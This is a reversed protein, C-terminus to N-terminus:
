GRLARLGAVRRAERKRHRRRSPRRVLCRRRLMWRGRASRRQTGQVCASCRQPLVACDYALWRRQVRAFFSAAGISRRTGLGSDRTGLGPGGMVEHRQAAGMRGGVMSTKGDEPSVRHGQAVGQQGQAQQGRQRRQRRGATEVDAVHHRQVPHGRRQQRGIAARQDEGLPLNVLGAVLGAGPQPQAVQAGAIRRRRLPQGRVAPVDIRRFQRGVALGHVEEAGLGAALLQVRQRQGAARRALEGIERQVHVAVVDRRLAVADGEAGAHELVAARIQAARLLAQVRLLVGLGAAHHEVLQEHAMPVGPVVAAAVAQEHRRQGAVGLGLRHEAGRRDAHGQRAVNRGLREAAALVVGPRRVPLRQDGAHAHGPALLRPGGVEVQVTQIRRALGRRDVQGRGVAGPVGARHEGGVALGQVVARHFAGAEFGVAEPQHRHVHGAALGALDRRLPITRGALDHERGVAAGDVGGGVVDALMRQERHIDGAALDRGHDGVAVDTCRHEGAAGQGVGEVAELAAVLHEDGVGIALMRARDGGAGAFLQRVHGEAVVRLELELAPVALGHVAVHDLRVVVLGALGIRDREQDVAPRLAAEAVAPAVAPIRLGVGALAVRHHHDVKVTGGAVALREGIRDALVPAVARQFVQLLAPSRRLLLVFEEVAVLGARQAGAVAAVHHVPHGAVPVLRPLAQDVVVAHEVVAGHAVGGLFQPEALPLVAARRPLVRGAVLREVRHQM